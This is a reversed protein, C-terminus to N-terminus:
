PATGQLVSAADAVHGSIAAAVEAAAEVPLLQRRAALALTIKGGMPHGSAIYRGDVRTEIEAHVCDAYADITYPGPAEAQDGFDRLELQLNQFRGNL